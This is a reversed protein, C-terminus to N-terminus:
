ESYEEIDTVTLVFSVRETYVEISQGAAVYTKGDVAFGGDSNRRGECLMRGKANVRSNENPYFAEVIGGASDVFLESAPTINLAGQNESESIIIGLLKGDSEFYVQDDVNIYNPTTYRINEVSFSVVYQENNKAATLFDLINYRFYIGVVALIALIVIMADVANFHPSNRKEEKSRKQKAM